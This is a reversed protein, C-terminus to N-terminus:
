CEDKLQVEERLSAVCTMDGNLFNRTGHSSKKQLTFQKRFFRQGWSHLTFLSFGGNACGVKSTSGVRAKKPPPPSTNGDNSIGICRDLHQNILDAVVAKGCSPCHVSELKPPMKIEADKQSDGDYTEIRGARVSEVTVSIRRHTWLSEYILQFGDDVCYHPHTKNALTRQEISRM